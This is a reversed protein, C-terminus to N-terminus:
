DEFVLVPGMDINTIIIENDQDNARTSGNGSRMSRTTSFSEQYFEEYLKKVEDCPNNSLIFKVGQNHLYKVAKSLEVQEKERFPTSWYATFSSMGDRPYYPPDLYVLDGPLLQPLLEQYTKSEWQIDRARFWNSLSKVNNRDYISGKYPKYPVNYEGSQNERYLGNFGRKNLYIFQGALQLTYNNKNANYDERILNYADKDNNEESDFEELVNLFQNCNNQIVKYTNILPGNIDNLLLKDPNLALPLALSGAFLDVYRDWEAHSAVNVLRDAIGRKGGAWKIVPQPTNTM